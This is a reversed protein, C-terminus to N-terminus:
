YLDGQEEGREVSDKYYGLSLLLNRVTNEVTDSVKNYHYAYSQLRLETIFKVVDAGELHEKALSVM